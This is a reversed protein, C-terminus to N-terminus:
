QCPSGRAASLLEKSGAQGFVSCGFSSTIVEWGSLFSHAPSLITVYLAPLSATSADWMYAGLFASSFSPSDPMRLM